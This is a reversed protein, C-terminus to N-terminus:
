CLTSTRNKLAATQEAQQRLADKQLELQELALKNALTQATGLQVTAEALLKQAKATQAFEERQAKMEERNAKLELRQLRLEKRQARLAERQLNLSHLLALLAGANLLAALPALADGRQGWREPDTSCLWLYFTAGGIVLVALGRLAWAPLPARSENSM